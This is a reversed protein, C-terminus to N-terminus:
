YALKGITEMQSLLVAPNNFYKKIELQVPTDFYQVMYDKYDRYVNILLAEVSRCAYKFVEYAMYINQKHFPLLADFSQDKFELFKSSVCLHLDEESEKNEPKEIFGSGKGRLRLKVGHKSTQLYINCMDIIRKM